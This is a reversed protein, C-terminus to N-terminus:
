VSNSPRIGGMEHCLWQVSAEPLGGPNGQATALCASITFGFTPEDSSRAARRWSIRLAYCSIVLPLSDPKKRAIEARISSHAMSRSLGYSRFGPGVGVDLDGPDGDTDSLEAEARRCKTTLCASVAIHAVSGRTFAIWGVAVALVTEAIVLITMEGADTSEPTSYGRVPSLIQFLKVEGM